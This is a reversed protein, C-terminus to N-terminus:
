EVFLLTDSIIDDSVTVIYLNANNSEDIDKYKEKGLLKNVFEPTTNSHGVVLVTKGKTQNLFEQTDINKPNYSTIELNNKLATPTATEITRHYNTSYVIDFSVNKLVDNWHEARQKGNEILHPNHNSTDSRDKEAHRVFYYTSVETNQSFTTLTNLLIIAIILLQKM